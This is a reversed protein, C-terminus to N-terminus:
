SSFRSSMLDIERLLEHMVEDSIQFTQRMNIITQREVKLVEQWIKNEAAIIPHTTHEPAQNYTLPTNPGDGLSLIKDNYHGIVRKLAGAHMPEAVVSLKGLKKLANYAAEKRAMWNEEMHRPDYRLSLKKILLPLTIGQVVLTVLIVGFAIFIMENRYPFATTSNQLTLPLALATALSVVGRMGTWAVIFVNQWNPYRLDKGFLRIVYIQGYGNIYVWAFRAVIMVLSIILIASLLKMGEDYSLSQLLGPFYLGILLFVLGNMVFVAMKWVPGSQLRFASSFYKPSLWGTVIGSTVVALVGSGHLEETLIYVAYPLLFSSLIEVSQEKIRPFVKIYFYASVGGICVGSVVMWLFHLSAEGLSFSGAAVAVVAFKYIVLGTADNILSEGELITKIRRPVKLNKMIGMAAIADPPSVIAGMTLGVAWGSGPFIYQMIVAVCFATFIVLGVAMQSISRLNFKFERVSTFYAAETLLLPLFILFIMDPAIQFQPFHPIFALGVGGIVCAIPYSLRIRQAIFCIFCLAVLLLLFIETNSQM